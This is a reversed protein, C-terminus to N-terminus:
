SRLQQCWCLITMLLKWDAKVPGGFRACPVDHRSDKLFAAANPM